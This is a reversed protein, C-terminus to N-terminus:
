KPHNGFTIVACRWHTAEVAVGNFSSSRIMTVASCQSPLANCQLTLQCYESAAPGRARKERGM